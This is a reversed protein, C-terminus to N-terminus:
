MVQYFSILWADFLSLLCCTATSASLAFDYWVGYSELANKPSHLINDTHFWRQELSLHSHLVSLICGSSSPVPANYHEPFTLYLWFTHFLMLTKMMYETPNSFHLVSHFWKCKLISSFSALEWKLRSTAIQMNLSTDSVTGPSVQDTQKFSLCMPLYGLWIQNIELFSAQNWDSLM